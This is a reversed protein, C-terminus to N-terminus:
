QRAELNEVGKIAEASDIQRLAVTAHYRVLYYTDELCVKLAAIATPDGIHGLSMAAKAREVWHTEKLQKILAQVRRDQLHYLVKNMQTNDSRTTFFGISTITYWVPSKRRGNHDSNM